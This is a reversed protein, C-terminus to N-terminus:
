QGGCLSSFHARDTRRESTHLRSRLWRYLPAFATPQAGPLQLLPVPTLLRDGVREPDRRTGHTLPHSTGALAPGLRQPPAHRRSRRRLQSVLLPLRQRGHQRPAGLREAETALDPRGLARRRHDPALEPDAVVGIM